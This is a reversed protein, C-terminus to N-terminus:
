PTFVLNLTVNGSSGSYGDVAIQYTTGPAVVFTALSTRNGGSDDDNAVLTLSTIASGTYVALVTDFDSGVTSVTLTGNAPATWKWWLSHGGCNGAHYPEAPEKTAWTNTAHTIIGSGSLLLRSAFNDNAPPQLGAQFNLGLEITGQAGGYGDVAIQYSAGAVAGFSTRSTGNGGSQDDCTIMSLSSVASGTYIGLLTDFGSGVTSVTAVGNAPATWTWWVSHGGGNGAHSPEGAEKSACFSAGQVLLNTGTLVARNAFADNAPPQSCVQFSVTLTIHGAAGNAGDVAIQYTGGAAVAFSARSTGNGGSNDDSAVWSLFGLATGGYVGLLTDFDSGVTSITAIGSATATWTWWVSHGGPKGAHEPENFEKSACFNTAHTTVNNGTLVIRSAFSDNPPPQVCGQWNLTLGINGMSGLHGDVAVRCVTGASVPVSVRSNGPGGSQHDGALLSLADVTSGTYVALLTDFDSGATSVTVIGSAPATWTWWVSHGGADGAHNPEGPEKTACFNDGQTTLSTGTLVTASALADNSTPEPCSNFDLTLAANGAAGNLGDVAIQLATGATVPLSLRSTGNSGSQINSAVSSLSDVAAGTYVALLTPFDSGATSLVLAGDAAATWTWWVSHGGGNGAHNPEGAEQTANTTSVHATADAGTLVLRHAFDDNPPDQEAVDFNVTAYVPNGLDDLAVVAASYHGTVGASTLTFNYPPTLVSGLLEGDNWSGGSAFFYVGAISHNPAPNALAEIVIPRGPALLQNETPNAITLDPAAAVVLQLELPGGDAAGAVAIQYVTGATATFISQSGFHPIGYADSDVEALSALTNGTYVALFAANQSDKASFASVMVPGSIPSTWTWWISPGSGAGAHNPEGPERTGARNNGTVLINSGVLVLRRAFDDNAPRVTISRNSQVTQGTTDTAEVQIQYQGPPVNSWAFSFPSSAVAGLCTRHAPSLLQFRVEGLCGPPLLAQGQILVTAPALFFGGDAPASVELVPRPAVLLQFDTPAYTTVSIQYTVGAAAQFDAEDYGSSAALLTGSSNGTDVEVYVSANAGRVRAAVPGNIPSTWSWWVVGNASGGSTAQTTAPLGSLAIRHAFDDNAPAPRDTPDLWLTLDLLSASAPLSTVESAYGLASANITVYPAANLAAETQLFFRGQTDSTATNGSLDTQVVAGAVPQGSWSDYAWGALRLYNTSLDRLRYFRLTADSGEPETYTFSGGEALFSSVSDWEAMNTSVELAYFGDKATDFRVEFRNSGPPISGALRSIPKFRQLLWSEVLNSSLGGVVGGFTADPLSGLILRNESYSPLLSRPAPDGTFHNALCVTLNTQRSLVVPGSLSANLETLTQRFNQEAEAQGPDLNFLRLTNAPRSRIFASAQLYFDIASAFAQRAALLDNITAFTLLNPHARLFPEVTRNTATSSDAPVAWERLEALQAELNWSYVTYCAYEASKLGARLLLLDGYDLTVGESQTEAASLTLTYNTDVIKELNAGSAQVAPLLNTRLFASLEAASFNTPALLLGNTDAPPRSQWHYVSRGTVNFGLRDLLAAGAPTESLTLLRTVALLANAEPQNPAAAVAADFRAEARALDQAALFGRGQAVLQGATQALVAQGLWAMLVLVASTTM